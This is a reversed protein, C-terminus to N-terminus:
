NHMQGRDIVDDENQIECEHDSDAPPKPFRNGARPVKKGGSMV